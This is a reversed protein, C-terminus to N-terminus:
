AAASQRGAGILTAIRAAATSSMPDFILRVRGGSEIAAVTATQTLDAFALSVRSGIAPSHGLGDVAAGGASLDALTLKHSAGTAAIILTAPLGAGGRPGGRRDVEPTAARVVRVVGHRLAAIALRATEASQQVTDSRTGSAQAESAVIGMRQTVRDTAAATEAVARAIEQTAASQEEMAAAIAAAAEDVVGVANAMEQVITM